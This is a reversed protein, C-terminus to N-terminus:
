CNEVFWKVTQKLENVTSVAPIWDLENQAKTSDLFMSTRMREFENSFGTIAAGFTLLNIPVKIIRPSVGMLQACNEFLFPMTCAEADSLNFIDCSKGKVMLCQNIAACLNRIGLVSRAAVLSGIPMPFGRAIARLMSEISGKARPGIVLPLRLIILQTSAGASAALLRFEANLKSAGYLDSPDLFSSESYSTADRSNSGYVRASSFFIFKRVCNGCAAEYADLASQINVSFVDNYERPTVRRSVCSKGAAFVVADLDRVVSSWDPKNQVCPIRRFEFNKMERDVLPKHRGIAIPTHGQYFLDHLLHGGIFGTCGIVGVKM